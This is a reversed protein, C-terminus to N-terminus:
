QAQGQVLADLDIGAGCAPCDHHGLPEPELSQQDVAKLLDLFRHLESAYTEPLTHAIVVGNHVIDWVGRHINSPRAYLNIKNSM